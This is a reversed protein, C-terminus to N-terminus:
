KVINLVKERVLDLVNFREAYDILRKINKDNRSVYDSIMENIINPTARKNKLMDIVTKELNTVRVPNGDWTNIIETYEDSVEASSFYHPKINQETANKLHYGKQFTMHYKFPYNTSLWHLMVATEHSYIGKSYQLQLLYLDDYFSEDLLYIGRSHRHIDSRNVAKRLTSDNLGNEKALQTTLVGNNELFVEHVKDNIM